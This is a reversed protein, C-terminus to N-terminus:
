INETRTPRNSPRPYLLCPDTGAESFILSLFSPCTGERGWSLCIWWHFLLGPRHGPPLGGAQERLTLSVGRLRETSEDMVVCRKGFRARGPGM